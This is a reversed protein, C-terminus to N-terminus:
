DKLGPVIAILMREVLELRRHMKFHITNIKLRDDLRVGLGQEEVEQRAREYSEKEEELWGKIEKVFRRATLVKEEHGEVEDLGMEIRIVRAECDNREETWTKILPVSVEPTVREHRTEPESRPEPPPPEVIPPQTDPLPPGPPAVDPPEAPREPEPDPQRVGDEGPWPGDARADYFFWTAPKRREKALIWRQPRAVSDRNKKVYILGHSPDLLVVEKLSYSKIIEPRAHGSRAAVFEDTALQQSDERSRFGPSRLDYYCRRFDAKDVYLKHGDCKPCDVITRRRGRRWRVKGSGKCQPCIKAMPKRCRWWTAARSRLSGQLRKRERADLGDTVPDEEARTPRPGLIGVVLLLVVPIALARLRM